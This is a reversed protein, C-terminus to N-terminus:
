TININELQPFIFVIVIVSSSIYGADLAKFRLSFAAVSQTNRLVLHLINKVLVDKKEL